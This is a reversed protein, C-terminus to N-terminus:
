QDVQDVSVFVQARGILMFSRGGHEVVRRSERTMIVTFSRTAIPFADFSEPPITIQGRDDMRQMITPRDVLTDASSNGSPVSVIMITLSDALPDANWVLTLGKAREFECAYSHSSFQPATIRFATPCYVSDTFTPINNATNGSISVHATRGDTATISQVNRTYQTNAEVVFPVLNVGAVRVSGANIM